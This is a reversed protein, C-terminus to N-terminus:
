SGHAVTIIKRLAKSVGHCIESQFSWKARWAVLATMQTEVVTRHTVAVGRQTGFLIYRM